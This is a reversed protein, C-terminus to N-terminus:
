DIPEDDKEPALYIGDDTPWTGQMLFDFIHQAMLTGQTERYSIGMQLEPKQSTLGTSFLLGIHDGEALKMDFYSVIYRTGIDEKPFVAVKRKDMLWAVKILQQNIHKNEKRYVGRRGIRHAKILRNVEVLVTSLASAHREYTFKKVKPTEM